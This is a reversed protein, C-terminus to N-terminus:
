FDFSSFLCPLPSFWQSWQWDQSALHNNTWIPPWRGFGVAWTKKPSVSPDYCTVTCSLLPSTAYVNANGDKDMLKDDKPEFDVVDMDMAKVVMLLSLLHIPPFPSPSSSPPSPYSVLSSLSHLPLTPPPCHVNPLPPSPCSLPFRSLPLPPLPPPPLQCHM